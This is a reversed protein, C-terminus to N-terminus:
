KTCFTFSSTISSGSISGSVPSGTTFFFAVFFFAVLFAAVFFAALFAVLFFAAFFFFDYDEESEMLEFCLGASEAPKKRAGICARRALSHTEGINPSVRKRTTSTVVGSSDNGSWSEVAFDGRGLLRIYCVADGDHVSHQDRLGTGSWSAAREQM